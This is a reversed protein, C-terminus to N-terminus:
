DRSCVQILRLVADLLVDVLGKSLDAAVVLHSVEAVISPHVDLVWPVVRFSLEYSLAHNVVPLLVDHGVVKWRNAKLLSLLHNLKPLSRALCLGDDSLVVEEVFM